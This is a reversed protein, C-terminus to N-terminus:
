PRWRAARRCARGPRSVPVSVTVLFSKPDAVTRVERTLAVYGPADAQDLNELDLNVGAFGRTRAQNVVGTWRECSKSLRARINVLVSAGTFGAGAAGTARRPCTSSASSLSIL